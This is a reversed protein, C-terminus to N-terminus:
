IMLQRGILQRMFEDYFSIKSSLFVDDRNGSENFYRGIVKEAEGRSYAPATDIYNIGKELSTEIIRFYSDDKWPTTGMVIESVMMGTDGFRRYAMGSQRNRWESDRALRKGEKAVQTKKNGVVAPAVSLGVSTTLVNRVFKRRNNKDSAM